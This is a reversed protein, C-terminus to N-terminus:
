PSFLEERKRPESFNELELVLAEATLPKPAESSNQEVEPDSVETARESSPRREHFGEHAGVAELSEQQAATAGLEAGEPEKKSSEYRKKSWEHLRRMHRYWQYTLTEYLRKLPPHPNRKLQKILVQTFSTRKSEWTYQSDGCASLSIVNPQDEPIEAKEECFGDCPLMDTPSSCMPVDIEEIIDSRQSLVSLSVDSGWIDLLMSLTTNQRRKVARGPQNYVSFQRTKGNESDIVGVSTDFVLVEDQSVRKRQYIRVSRTRTSTRRSEQSAPSGERAPQSARPLKKKIVKVEAQTMRQDNKRRVGRWLTNYHRFGPSIWPYYVNNCLYHDLDLLTGSHCSDFIAILNAGVPLADVLLKRLKNDLIMRKKFPMGETYQWHDIPILYYFMFHDGSRAGHVLRRIERLINDRTPAFRPDGEEEDLLFVVNERVYDYKAILLEGFDKADQRPHLLVRFSDPMEPADSYNIGILLAKKSPGNAPTSSSRRRPGIKVM